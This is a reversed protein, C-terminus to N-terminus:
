HWLNAEKEESVTPQENRVAPFLYFIIDWIIRLTLLGLGTPVLIKAPWLPINVIGMTYDGTVLAEWASLWSQWTLVTCVALGVLYGFFNLFGKVRDPLWDTALEVAIHGKEAQVYALGLFVIGVILLQSLEFSGPIPSNFVKRLFVDVTMLLMLIIAIGGGLLLLAKELKRQLNELYRLWSIM